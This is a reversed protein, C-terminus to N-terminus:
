SALIWASTLAMTGATIRNFLISSAPTAIIKNLQRALFITGFFVGGVAAFTVLLVLALQDIGTVGTPAIIPVMLLYMLLTTPNGVCLAVGALASGFLGGGRTQNSNNSAQCNWTKFALWLLYAVGFYKMLSLLEPSSKAWVGVGVAVACAVMLMGACLGVAFGGAGKFDSGLSRVILVAMLPGPAIAYIFVTIFYPMVTSYDM